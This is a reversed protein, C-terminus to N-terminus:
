WSSCSTFGGVTNCQATRPMTNGIANLVAARSARDAADTRTARQRADFVIEAMRLQADEPSMEGRDVKIALNLRTARFLPATMDNRPTLRESAANVCEARRAYDGIRAPIAAKCEAVARDFEAQLRASQQAACGTTLLLIAIAISCWLTRVPVQPRGQGRMIPIWLPYVGYEWV